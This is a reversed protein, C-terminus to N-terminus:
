ARHMPHSKGLTPRPPELLVEDDPDTNDLEPIVEGADEVAVEAEKKLARLLQAKEQRVHSWLM